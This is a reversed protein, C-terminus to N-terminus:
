QQQQETTDDCCPAPDHLLSSKLEYAESENPVSTSSKLHCGCNSCGAKDLYRSKDGDGADAAASQQACRRDGGGGGDDDDDHASGAGQKTTKYPPAPLPRDAISSYHGSDLDNVAADRRRTESNRCNGDDVREAAAANNEVYNNGMRMKSSTRKNLPTTQRHCLRQRIIIVILILIVLITVGLLVSIIVIGTSSFPHTGYQRDATTSKAIDAATPEAAAHSLNLQYDETSNNVAMDKYESNFYGDIKLVSTKIESAAVPGLFYRDVDGYNTGRISTASSKRSIVDGKVGNRLEFNLREANGRVDLAISVNSSNSKSVIDVGVVVVSSSRGCNELVVTGTCNILMCSYIGAHQFTARSVTRSYKRKTNGMDVPPQVSAWTLQSDVSKDVSDRYCWHLEDSSTNTVCTLKIEGGLFVVQNEPGEIIESHTVVLVALVALLVSIPLRETPAM